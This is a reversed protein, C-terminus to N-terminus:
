IDPFLDEWTKNGNVCDIAARLQREVGALSRKFETEAINKWTKADAAGHKKYFEALKKGEGIGWNYGSRPQNPDNIPKIDGWWPLRPLNDIYEGRFYGDAESYRVGGGTASKRPPNSDVEVLETPRGCGHIACIEQEKFGESASVKHRWNWKNKGDCIRILEKM